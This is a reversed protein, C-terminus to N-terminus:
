ARIERALFGRPSFAEQQGRENTRCCRGHRISNRRCVRDALQIRARKRVEFREGDFLSSTPANEILPRLGKAAPRRALFPLSRIPFVLSPQHAFTAGMCDQDVVALGCDAPSLVTAPVLLRVGSMGLYISYPAITQAKSTGIIGVGGGHGRAARRDAQRSTRCHM